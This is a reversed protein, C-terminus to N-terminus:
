DRRAIASVKVAIVVLLSIVTWIFGTAAGETAFIYLLYMIWIAAAVGAIASRVGHPLSDWRSPGAPM